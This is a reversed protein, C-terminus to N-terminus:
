KFLLLAPSNKRTISIFVYSPLNFKIAPDLHDSSCNIMVLAMGGEFEIMAKFKFFTYQSAFLM